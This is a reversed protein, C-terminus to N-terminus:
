KNVHMLVPDTARMVNGHDLEVFVLGKNQVIMDHWDAQGIPFEVYFWLGPYPHNQNKHDHNIM